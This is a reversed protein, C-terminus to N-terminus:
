KCIEKKLNQLQKIQGKLYKREEPYEAWNMRCRDICWEIENKQEKPTLNCWPRNDLQVFLENPLLKM